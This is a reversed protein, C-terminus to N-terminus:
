KLMREFATLEIGVEEKKIEKLTLPIDNVTM